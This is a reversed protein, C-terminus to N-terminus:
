STGAIRRLLAEWTDFVREPEYREVIRAAEGGLRAREAADAMLPGLAAGLADPDDNGDALRGNRGPVILENVGACGRFGVAPLAHAMAEALANPFGEWRSPLCFLDADRYAAAVDPTTGSMTLRARIGLADALSELAAREEGEGVIRLRWAPHAASLGAFARVLATFNKQYSLRGVSLLTRTAKDGGPNARTAARAVPNPVVAIRDRLYSPYRGVYGPFQVTVAAARRMTQFMVGRCRGARTHDLLEPANRESLIVPVGTRAAGAAAFLFPGHQFAVVVDPRAERVRRRFRRLRALRLAPSAPRMPDGMDLRHWRIAGSMPYFARAHARDWTFLSVEHGRDVMANMLLISVREVGGVGDAFL